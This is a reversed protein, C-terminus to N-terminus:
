GLHRYQRRYEAALFDELFRVRQTADPAEMSLRRSLPEVVTQLLGSLKQERTAPDLQHWRELIREIAEVDQPRALKLMGPDFRFVAEAPDRDLLRDRLGGLKAQQDSVLITGAVMDGLRQSKKSVFPVIWLLPINDIIRFINRMLISGADLAFGNSKVVRLKLMRKGLTRGGMVLESFGFYLFTSLGAIATMLGVLVMEAQGPERSGRSGGLLQEIERAFTHDVAILIVLMFFVVTLILCLIIFDIIWASFRSGLGAAEYSVSVNEPTEFEVQQSMIPIM